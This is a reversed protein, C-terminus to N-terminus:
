RRWLWDSAELQPVLSHAQQELAVVRAREEGSRRPRLRHSPWAAHLSAEVRRRRIAASVNPLWPALGDDRASTAGAPPAEPGALRYKALQSQRNYLLLSGHQLYGGGERWVSSGGVKAAGLVLEGPAPAAFCTEGESVSTSPGGEDQRHVPIGLAHVAAAIRRNVAAYVLRWPVRRPVGLTVSWTVDDLHLLARGGTPRRVIDLGDRAMAAVDWCDAVREHRGFSVTPRQWRYTRITAAGHASAQRLLALDVAM